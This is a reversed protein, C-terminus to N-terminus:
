RLKNSNNYIAVRSRQFAVVVKNEALEEDFNEAQEDWLTMSISTDEDILTIERRKADRNSTRNTFAILDTCTDVIGIVDIFTKDAHKSVDRLPVFDFHVDPLQGQCEDDDVLRVTSGGVLTLEYDHRLNNYRKDAPKVRVGM